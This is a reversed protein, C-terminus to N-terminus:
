KPSGGEEEFNFDELAWDQKSLDLKGHQRCEGTVTGLCEGYEKTTARINSCFWGCKPCKGPYDGFTM